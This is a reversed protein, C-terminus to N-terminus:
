VQDLLTLGEIDAFVHSNSQLITLFLRKNLGYRSLLATVAVKFSNEQIKSNRDGGFVLSTESAGVPENVPLLVAWFWKSCWKM